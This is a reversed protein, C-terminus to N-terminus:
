IVWGESIRPSFLLIMEGEQGWRWTFVVLTSKLILCVMTRHQQTM